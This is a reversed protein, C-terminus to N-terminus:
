IGLHRNIVRRTYLCYRTNANPSSTISLNGQITSFKNLIEIDEDELNTCTLHGNYTIKNTEMNTIYLNTKGLCKKTIVNEEKDIEITQVPPTDKVDCALDFMKEDLNDLM